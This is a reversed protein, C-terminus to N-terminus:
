FKASTVIYFARGPAVAVFPTASRYLTDYYLKNTLNQAYLKMTWHQDIKKEVFADFRWYSPILTGTNAGFTGGYVKSRFVAQGGVEWDGDFKYKSLLSFSQHAVNALPLGVNSAINSKTVKSEMLVIGGFISWRDTLKGSAEIDIGQIQYAANSTLTSVGNVTVTERANDKTTQFLAGSVLLHRDFLEWKTGVEAAKNQEPGLIVGGPVAGGYDAATGDLESGFPNTSTAYAAYLSGIPVPKYVIGGNYNVFNSSVRSSKAAISSTLDYGDYRVGGNLIITDEWNATDLVYIAKSDVNYRTPDGGLVPNFPGTNYTYSPAYISQNPLAGNSNFGSGFAESALGNYRGIGVRENSVELGAVATHKVSGTDFKFTADEQNAVVDVWQNRSQASATFTWKTPDPNTTIPSQPLTGIYALTSQEMRTRSTLTINDTPKYEGTLTGFDQRATQWDRNIFGYWNQRPIGAETVPVNGQKYYPVGFDPLGSLDTHVYNTTIKIDNTPTYKTSIFGGWRDDTVYNRGAVNADQFLGGTRVSFTPSIVQNVDLTVRKTRDTGFTTEANTFNQDGAQKTVINIAGGATGRGAYSSAPGRLIELQETFFNERISVAPDRIGDIFVDNRADFGRIFFRDGFANGGEGSGLTVGATSRGIEKLTTANKDELVEKSLVTITKPTNLLPEPFKGSAQVHDVKYPAAPDAYPDRDPAGTSQSPAAAAQQAQQRQAARRLANRARIQEPSPKSAAPRPREVPADVSVPPLNSQQAEAPGSFSAVAILGAVASAAKSSGGELREDIFDIAAFSRLSKPAVVQGM